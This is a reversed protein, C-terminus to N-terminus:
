PGRDLLVAVGDLIRELGFDFDTNQSTSKATTMAAGVRMLVPLQGPDYARALGPMAENWWADDDLGTERRERLLQGDLRAQQAVHALVLGLVRGMDADALGLGDLVRLELDTKRAEHPGMLSRAPAMQLLWPHKAHLSRNAEAVDRLGTRWNGVIPPEGSAYIDRYARDVMLAILDDKGPIVSYIAMARVNLKSAISRMSLADPGESEVLDVAATIFDGVTLGTRGVGRAQSSWLLDVTDALTRRPTQSKAM